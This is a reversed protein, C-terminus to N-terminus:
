NLWQDGYTSYYDADLHYLGQELVSWSKGWSSSTKCMREWNRYNQGGNSEFVGAKLGPLVPIHAAFRKNLEVMDPNVTLDACFCPVGRASAADLVELSVSLTKAIPKLTMAGYGYEDILCIADEASHASEDGAVTVPLSSVNQIGQEPFPEELLLIQELAGIRDAYELLRNIRDLTDYRGNADLYYAPRGSETWPTQYESLIKHIQGLREMDWRLMEDPDNRGGPNSGIKIKFFFRGSDALRRIEETETHYTILPIDGLVPQSETLYHSFPSLLKQFDRCSKETAYLKWLAWDIPTWANLIFTDRLDKRGTLAKAYDVLEPFVAHLMSIPDKLEMGKLIDLGYATIGEMLENGRQQGFQEFVAGDSWLVSQVGLGVANAGSDAQIGCRIQWLESLSGGKFGFPICLEEITRTMETKTIVVNLDGKKYRM